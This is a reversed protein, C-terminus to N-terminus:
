AARSRDARRETWGLGRDGIGSTCPQQRVLMPVQAATVAESFLFGQGIECGEDILRTRQAVTEIGEAVTTIRMSSAMAIVARVIAANGDDTHNLRHVFSQDIKIVDVPFQRLHSLSAYGTGFDDLAISVGARSLTQLTSEVTTVGRGLFVSETMEIEFRAPSVGAGQLTELFRDAFDGRLFDAPSGNIAIRRFEVGNDLWDRVDEVVKAIMQDTLMTALEIDEFAANIGHPLQLGRRPHHWRLLAEFGSLAGTELIVKPQYFPVVRNDRIANRARGLMAARVSMREPMDSSYMRSVARGSSKATYLAIDSSSLLSEATDADRPWLATGFSASCVLASGQVMFNDDLSAMASETTAVVVADDILNPLIIAFEDGGLRAVTAGKPVTAVLRRSIEILLEDGAIHGHTDNVVKFHDIDLLVLGVSLGTESARDLALGLSAGFLARNALGTLPDHNAAWRLSDEMAKRDSVDIMSGVARVAVGRDDRLIYGRTSVDAYRGDFKRFRYSASWLDGNGELARQRGALVGARDAPHVREEWWETTTGAQAEPYGFRTGIADGWTTLETDRHWDWVTDTTAKMVLRYREESRQLATLTSKLVHGDAISMAALRRDYLAAWLAAALIMIVALIVFGGLKNAVLWSPMMAVSSDPLITIAAMGFFHLTCIGLTLTATAFLPTYGGLRRFILWGSLACLSVGAAISIAILDHDYILYGGVTLSLMDLYHAVALGVGVLMGGLAPHWPRPGAAVIWGAMSFVIASALAACAVRGDIGINLGPTYALM